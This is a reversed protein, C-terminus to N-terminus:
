LSVIIFRDDLLPEIEKKVEEWDLGGNSCGPRPLLVESYDYLNVLDVLEKTSKIILNIDSKDRWDNKTPFSLIDSRNDSFIIEVFDIGRSLMRGYEEDIGKYEDRFAKAVGAGMVAKGDKKVVLNTTICKAPAEIYLINGKIEKM